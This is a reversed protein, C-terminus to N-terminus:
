FRLWGDKATWMLVRYEEIYMSLMKATKENTNSIDMYYNNDFDELIEELKKKNFTDYDNPMIVGIRAGINKNDTFINEGNSWLELVGQKRLESEVLDRIEQVTM